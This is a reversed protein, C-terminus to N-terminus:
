NVGFKRLNNASGSIRETPDHLSRDDIMSTADDSLLVSNRGRTSEILGETAALSGGLAEEVGGLYTFRRSTCFLRKTHVVIKVSPRVRKYAPNSLGTSTGLAKM